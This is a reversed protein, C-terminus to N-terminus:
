KEEILVLVHELGRGVKYFGSHTYLTKCNPCHSTLEDTDDNKRVIKVHMAAKLKSGCSCKFSHSVETFM